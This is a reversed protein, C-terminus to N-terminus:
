RVYIPSSVLIKTLKNNKISGLVEFRIYGKESILSTNIEKDYDIEIDMYENNKYIRLVKPNINFKDNYEISSKTITISINIEKNENITDGLNFLEGNLEFKSIMKPGLSSYIRGQKISKVANVENLKGDIGLYTLPINDNGNPDRHWDRGSACAIKYGKNLQRVWMLYADENWYIEQPNASNFIEIYDIQDWNRVNFEWHCGTCIPNGIAYPHALGVAVNDDKKIEMICEDMNDITAKTWDSMTSCGLIVMHGYFTTWETGKFIPLISKLDKDKVDEHASFSNHDTIFIATYGFEKSKTILEQTTYSGYSNNTHTHLEIPLYNVM